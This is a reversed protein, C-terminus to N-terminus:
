EQPVPVLAPEKYIANDEEDFEWLTHRCQFAYNGPPPGFCSLLDRRAFIERSQAKTFCPPLEAIAQRFQIAQEPTLRLWGTSVAPRDVFPAQQFRQADKPHEEFYQQIQALQAESVSKCWEADTTDSDIRFKMKPTFGKKMLAWQGIQKGKEYGPMDKEAYKPKLDIIQWFGASYQTVWMGIKLENMSIRENERMSIGNM